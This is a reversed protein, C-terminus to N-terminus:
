EFDGEVKWQELVAPLFYDWGLHNSYMAEFGNFLHQIQNETINRFRLITRETASFNTEKNEMNLCIQNFAKRFTIYAEKSPFSMVMLTFVKTLFAERTNTNPGKFLIATALRAVDYKPFWLDRELQIFTFGLFEMKQLPFDYGGHFYKLKMGFKGFHSAMYGESLIHDFEADLSAINDDGFLFVFQQALLDFTPFEGFKIYYCEILAAAFIVIHAFINDRTTNGSGSPNGYKKLFVHGFPTKFFFHVTNEVMWKFNAELNKPVQTNKSVFQYIEKMIALFKDWGSVDYFLRVPKSLLKRALITVGGKYPNFGYASWKYEKLRESVKRGFRLQEYVLDLNPITFLRIKNNILDVLAKFEVKAHVSWLSIHKLYEGSSKYQQYDPDDLLHQKNRFGFNNGPYGCSKSKDIIFYIEEDTMICDDFLSSYEVDLFKLALRFFQDDYNFDPRADFTKISFIINEFTPQSMHYVDGALDKIRDLENGNIYQTLPEYDRKHTPLGSKINSGGPVTGCFILNKFEPFPNVSMRPEVHGRWRAIKAENLKLKIDPM